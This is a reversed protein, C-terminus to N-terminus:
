FIVNGSGGGVFLLENADLERVCAEFEKSQLETEHLEVTSQEQVVNTTTEM